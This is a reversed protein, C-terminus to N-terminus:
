NSELSLCLLASCPMSPLLRPALYATYPIAFIIYLNHICISLTRKSRRTSEFFRFRAAFSHKSPVHIGGSNQTRSHQLESEHEGLNLHLHRSPPNEKPPCTITWCTMISGQRIPTHKPHISMNQISSPSNFYTTSPISKTDSISIVRTCTAPPSPSIQSLVFCKASTRHKSETTPLNKFPPSYPSKEDM